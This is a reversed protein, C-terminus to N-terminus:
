EVVEKIPKQGKSVQQLLLAMALPSGADGLYGLNREGRDEDGICVSSCSDVINDFNDQSLIAAIHSMTHTVLKSAWDRYPQVKDPPGQLLNKGQKGLFLEYDDTKKKLLFNRQLVQVIQGLHSHMM